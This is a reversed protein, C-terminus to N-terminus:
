TIDWAITNADERIPLLDFEYVKSGRMQLAKKLAARERARMKRRRLKREWRHAGGIYNQGGYHWLARNCDPWRFKQGNKYAALSNGPEYGCELQVEHRYRDFDREMTGLHANQQEFKVWSTNRRKVVSTRNGASDVFAVREKYPRWSCDPRDRRKTCRHVIYGPETEDECQIEIPRTNDTKGM